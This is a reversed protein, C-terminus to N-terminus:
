MCINLIHQFGTSMCAFVLEFQVFHFMMLILGTESTGSVTLKFKNQFTDM